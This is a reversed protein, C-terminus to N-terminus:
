AAELTQTTINNQNCHHEPHNGPKAICNSLDLHNKFHNWWKSPHEPHNGIRQYAAELTQTTKLM